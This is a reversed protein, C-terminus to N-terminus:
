KLKLTLEFNELLNSCNLLELRIWETEPYYKWKVKYYVQCDVIKKGLLEKIEFEQESDSSSTFLESDSGGM